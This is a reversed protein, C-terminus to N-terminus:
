TQNSSAPLRELGTHRIECCHPVECLFTPSKTSASFDRKKGTAAKKGRVHQLVDAQSLEWSWM